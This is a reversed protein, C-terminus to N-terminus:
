TFPYTATQPSRERVFALLPDLLQLHTGVSTAFPVLACDGRAVLDNVLWATLVSQFPIPAEAEQWKWQAAESAQWARGESERVIARLRQSSIEVLM